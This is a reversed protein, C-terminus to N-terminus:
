LNYRAGKATGAEVSGCTLAFIMSGDDMRNIAVYHWSVGMCAHHEILQQKITEYLVKDVDAAMEEHSIGPRHTMDRWSNRTIHLSWGIPVRQVNVLTHWEADVAIHVRTRPHERACGSAALAVIALGLGIRIKQM